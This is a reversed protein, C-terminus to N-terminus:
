TAQHVMYSLLWWGRNVLEDLIAKACKDSLHVDHMIRYTRRDTILRQLDLTLMQTQRVNHPNLGWQDEWM